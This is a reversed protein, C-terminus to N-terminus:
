VTATFRWTGAVAEVVAYGAEDSATTAVASGGERVSDADSTPIHIRATTNAPIVVDLQIRGDEIRWASSIRGAPADYWAAARTLGGGMRPRIRIAAFAPATEGIGAVDSFLWEAAAGYAYHSYSNMGPDAPGVDKTWGNWREWISTAGQTIPYLWSPYSETTLLRFAVDSRGHASLVPLLYPQGLFGTSLHWDREAILAVLRDVVAPRQEPLLLDFRLALLCATQTPAGEAFGRVSGDAHVFARRFAAAIKAWTERLRAEDERHGLVAATDATLQVSYAWFATMLVEEPTQADLSLWDGFVCLRQIAKPVQARLYQGPLSTQELYACWRLMAPWMAALQARDGYAQWMTWPCIVGADGWGADGKHLNWTEGLDKVFPAVNPFAGDVTQADRVDQHWKAFFAQVDRNWTATRVFAQADGTWGLRENRQPCDTPVDICNALQTTVVNALFHELRPDSCTFSGAEPCASSLVIGDVDTTQPGDGPWGAIEVYQFGHFTFAPEWTEGGGRAVYTDTALAGRLNDTSLQRDPGVMEAHRLRITTGGPADLRFRVRGAINRGLDLIWVGPRAQWRAIPRIVELRQVPPGPHAQVPVDPWAREVVPRWGVGAFGPRDWGLPELGADHHEGALLGTALVPGNATTWARDSTVVTVSGDDHVLRLLALVSTEGGWRNGSGWGVPGKFWGEALALGIVHEGPQAVLATVDHCRYLLRKGYDHFGPAFQDDCADHGDIRVTVNGRATIFLRGDVVPRQCTFGRRLLPVHNTFTLTSGIWMAGAWDARTPLGTAFRAPASWPSVVGAEDWVRVRWHVMSAAALGPGGWAVLHHDSGPRQGADWLLRGAELDALSGAAQVQWATQRAGRRHTAFRWSLRPAVGDVALPGTLGECRLCEPTLSADITM